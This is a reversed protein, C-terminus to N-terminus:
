CLLQAISLCIKTDKLVKMPFQKLLSIEATFKKWHKTGAECKCSNGDVIIFEPLPSLKPVSLPVM